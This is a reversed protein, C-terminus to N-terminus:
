GQGWVEEAPMLLRKHGPLEFVTTVREFPEEESQAEIKIEVPVFYTMHNPPKFIIFPNNLEIPTMRKIQLQRDRVTYLPTAGELTEPDERFHEAELWLGLLSSHSM